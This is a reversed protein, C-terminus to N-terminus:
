RPYLRAYFFGCGQHRILGVGVEALYEGFWDGWGILIVGKRWVVEYM